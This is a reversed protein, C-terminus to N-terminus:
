HIVSTFHGSQLKYVCQILKNDSIKIRNVFNIRYNHMLTNFSPLGTQLLMSTVCSYKDFGLFIKM